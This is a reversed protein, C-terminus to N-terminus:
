KTNQNIDTKAHPYSQLRRIQDIKALIPASMTHGSRVFRRLQRDSVGVLQATAKSGHITLIEALQERGRVQAAADRKSGDREFIRRTLHRSNSVFNWHVRYAQGLPTPKGVREIIGLEEALDRYRLATARMGYGEWRQIYRIALPVVPVGDLEHNAAATLRRLHKVLLYLFTRAKRRDPRHATLADITSAEDDTVFHLSSYESGTHKRKSWFHEIHRRIKGVMGERDNSWDRSNGNHNADMWDVTQQIADAIPSRPDLSGYFVFHSSIYQIAEDTQGSATIGNALYRNVTASGDSKRKSSKTRTLGLDYLAEEFQALRDSEIRILDGDSLLLEVGEVAAAVAEGKGIIPVFQSDLYASGRGLPLRLPANSPYVDVHVPVKRQLRDLKSRFYQRVDASPYLGDLPIYLHVGGSESSKFALGEGFMEQARDVFRMIEVSNDTKGHNDLDLVAWRTYDRFALGVVKQERLHRAILDDGAYRHVTSWDRDRGKIGYTRREREDVFTEIYQRIIPEACGGLSGQRVSPDEYM